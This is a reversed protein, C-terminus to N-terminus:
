RYKPRMGRSLISLCTVMEPALYSILRVSRNRQVDRPTLLSSNGPLRHVTSTSSPTPRKIRLLQIKSVLCAGGAYVTVATNRLPHKNQTMAPWASEARHGQANAYQQAHNQGRADDDKDARDRQDHKADGPHTLWLRHSSGHKGRITPTRFSTGTHLDHNPFRGLKERTNQFQQESDM